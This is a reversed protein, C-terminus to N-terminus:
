GLGGEGERCAYNCSEQLSLNSRGKIINMAPYLLTETEWSVPICNTHSFPENSFMFIAVRESNVSVCKFLKSVSQQSSIGFDM